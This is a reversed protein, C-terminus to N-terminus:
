AGDWAWLSSTAACQIAARQFHELEELTAEGNIAFREELRECEVMLTCARKLIAHEAASCADAGALDGLHLALLDKFERAWSSRLDVSRPLANGNM